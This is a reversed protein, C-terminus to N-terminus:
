RILVMGKTSPILKFFNTKHADGASACHGMSVHPANACSWGATLQRMFRLAAALIQHMLRRSCHERRLSGASGPCRRNAPATATDTLGLKNTLCVPQKRHTHQLQFGIGPAPKPTPVVPAKPIELVFRKGLVM